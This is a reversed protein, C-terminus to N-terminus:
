TSSPSQGIHKAVIGLLEKMVFPKEIFGDAGASEAMEGANPHASIMLIPIHKTAENEKLSKCIDAGNIDPMWMDLIILDPYPAKLNKIEHGDSMSRVIYGGMELMMTLVSVIGGNDDVVLITKKM